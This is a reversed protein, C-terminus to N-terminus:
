IVFKLTTEIPVEWPRFLRQLAKFVGPHTVHKAMCLAVSSFKQAAVFPRNLLCLKALIRCYGVLIYGIVGTQPTEAMSMANKKSANAGRWTETASHPIESLISVPIISQTNRNCCPQQGPIIITLLCPSVQTGLSKLSRAALAAAPIFELQGAADLLSARVLHEDFICGAGRAPRKKIGNGLALCKRGSLESTLRFDHDSPSLAIRQDIGKQLRRVQFFLNAQLNQLAAPIKCQVGDASRVNEKRVAAAQTHAM